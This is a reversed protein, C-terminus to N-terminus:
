CGCSVEEREAQDPLWAPGTHGPRAGRGGHSREETSVRQQTGQRPMQSTHTREDKADNRQRGVRVRRWPAFATLSAKAVKGRSNQPPHNDEPLHAPRPHGHLTGPVPCGWLDHSNLTGAGHARTGPPSLVRSHGSLKLPPPLGAGPPVHPLSTAGSLSLGPPVAPSTDGAPSIPPPSPPPPPVLSAQEPRGAPQLLALEPTLPLAQGRGRKRQSERTLDGSGGAPPLTVPSDPSPRHSPTVAKCPTILPVPLDSPRRSSEQSSM